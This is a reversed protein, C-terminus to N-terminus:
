ILFRKQLRILTMFYYKRLIIILKRNLELNEIKQDIISIPNTTPLFRNISRLFLEM